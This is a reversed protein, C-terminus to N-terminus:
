VSCLAKAGKVPHKVHENCVNKSDSNRKNLNSKVKRSQVKVKNMENSSPTQPIMDNKISGLPKSGSASASPNVRTSSLLPRNTVKPINSPKHIDPCTDRVYGLLEQILERLIAAQEITHKLYYEHAKRNNKVKPALIVLDLQYTRPAITIANSVQAANVDIAKGKLKRLDNKLATIVVVKERSPKISDYLQKYTHKLHENEAILKTVRHELEINITKIEDFDKKVSENTSTENVRKIHAKLKKITMDKAQHKTTIENELYNVLHTQEFYPMEQVSQNQIDNHTNDSYPVEFLVDLGYSSLNDMLVAKATSIEDRDSDYADFDDAQYAANHTIVSQTVPGEQMLLQVREWLDKAVRHHNVLLYIDALLGQLIINTAKMDCDAQIKETASLEAYKNTRIVRNEEITHWILPDNEVSELIMRRNEKNKMYLEIRSKWSDYLDKDLMPLRNDAGSLILYEALTNKQGIPIISDM